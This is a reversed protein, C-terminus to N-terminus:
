TVLFELMRRNVTEAQDVPLLHAANKIVATEVNPMLRQAREIMRDPNFIKERDGVLLLTPREIQRLADDDFLDALGFSLENAKFTTAGVRIQDILPQPQQVDLRNVTSWQFSRYFMQKTPVIFAPLMRLFIELRLRTIGAPSLLVMRDIRQPATIALNLLQWGGHSHGAFAAREIKLADLVDCLWDAYDQRKRLRQTPTSKGSQDIVDPAYVRFHRSLAAINPYWVTSSTQAGHILILPPAEPSGAGNIHTTGFRTEVTLAEPAVPWLALTAAYAALYNQAAVTNRFRSFYSM